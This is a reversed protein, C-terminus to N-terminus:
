PRHALAAEVAQLPKRYQPGLNEHADAIAAADNASSRAKSAEGKALYAAAVAAESEAIKPSSPDLRQRRQALASELLPVASEVDGNRLDARGEVFACWAAFSRYYGAAGSDEVQRAIAAALDKADAVRGSALEVEAVLLRDNLSRMNIPAGTNSVDSFRPLLAAAEDYKDQALALRVQTATLGDFDGSPPTQGAKTRISQAEELAAAAQAFQGAEIRGAAGIELFQALTITGPRNRRRNAIAEDIDALGEEFRGSRILAGAYQSLVMPTHFGDDAGRLALVKRKASALLALGEQVHGTDALQRGLRTECQVVDVHDEGHIAKALRLAERTNRLSEAIDAHLSQLDGLEAYFRPLDPNSEGDITRSAAIAREYTRVAEDDLGASNEVRAKRALANALGSNHDLPLTDWSAVSKRAYDLALAVNRKAYYQAYQDALLARRSVDDDRHEDLAAQADDLLAKVDSDSNGSHVSDTLRMRADFSEISRAGHAADAVDVAKRYLQTAQEDLGLQNHMDGLVILLSVKADPSDGLANDIKRAGQALLEEATTSRAKAQDSQYSTNAEFVDVLFGQVAEARRTQERAIQAQQRAVHAQWLALGLATVIALLFAFTTLVGGKHRAVFKRARYWRSPPHAAVPQGALHREIDDAFAGASAYRQEPASATAKLVVNDLDGRLQRRTVKPPAPLVGPETHEGIQSSPTRSDGPERRSGTMLEALLVGLAYVDTATTIAGRSFQEPAAYAPTMAQHQTHTADADADLLKAIGFDLLKVEGDHTVLVNSPKLDRHVILARHAAEVARCVAVFLQLRHRLDLRQERAYDTIPEGDILELAIYPVGSDTVGGEILRAIGPHRLQALALRESRFRRQEDKSYLGRRLLKLAVTQIVGSHERTARFVISSGGEGLKQQLTFPGAASGIPSMAEADNASDGVRGLLADFSDDLVRAAADADADLMREVIARQQADPCYRDLYAAREAMPLALAAEFLERPPPKPDTM